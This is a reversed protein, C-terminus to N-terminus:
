SRLYAIDKQHYLELAQKRTLGILENPEFSIEDPYYTFIIENSSNDYIVLVEKKFKGLPKIDCLVIKKEM